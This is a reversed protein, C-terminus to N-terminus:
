RRHAPNMRRRGHSPNKHKPRMGAYFIPSTMLSGNPFAGGGDASSQDSESAHSKCMVDLVRGDEPIMDILFILRKRKHAPAFAGTAMGTTKGRVTCQAREPHWPRPSDESLLLKAGASNLRPAQPSRTTSGPGPEFCRTDSRQPLEATQRLARLASAVLVDSVKETRSFGVTQWGHPPSPAQSPCWGWQDNTKRAQSSASRQDV